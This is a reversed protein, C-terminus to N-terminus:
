GAVRRPKGPAGRRLTNWLCFRRHWGHLRAHRLEIHHFAPNWMLSGYGFVWVDQDSAIGAVTAELSAARDEASMIGDDRFMEAVRADDVLLLQERTLAM